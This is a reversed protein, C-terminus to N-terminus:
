EERIEGNKYGELDGSIERAGRASRTSLPTRSSASSSQIGASPCPCFISLAARASAFPALVGRCRACKCHLPDKEGQGRDAQADGVRKKGGSGQGLSRQPLQATGAATSECGNPFSTGFRSWIREHVCRLRPRYCDSALLSAVLPSSLYLWVSFTITM